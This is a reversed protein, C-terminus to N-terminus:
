IRQLAQDFRQILDNYNELGISVRILWRSLGQAEVMDLEDYHALLVYPCVLSYNTGLSPGKSIQLADYFTPTVDRANKLLISMLGGYGGQDRMVASYNARNIFKPYYVREVKPHGHLYDAVVEANENIKHMRADFSFSREALLMADDCWLLDEYEEALLERMQVFYPSDSNFVLAGGMVDSIGSIYKTLSTMMVDCYPLPDVNLYSGVTEDVILPVDAKKLQEHLAPLSASGLLPNGPLDTFVGAIPEHSILSKFADTENADNSTFFHYGAGMKEQIKMLDVYPHGLQITKQDPRMRLLVRHIAALAAMGSPFLFVDTPTACTLEGIRTRLAKKAANGELDNDFRNLAAEALRSSVIDGSHQWYALAFELADEPVVVAHINHIGVAHIDTKADTHAEIFECCREAVRWSPFVVAAQGFKAFRETCRDCLEQVLPHQVFRPYGLQMADLVREHGEEYGIVDEWTPLCVSVAHPSDPIPKGLDEADCRPRASLIDCVHQTKM